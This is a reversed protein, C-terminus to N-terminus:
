SHEGVRRVVIGANKLNTDHDSDGKKRSKREAEVAEILLSVKGAKELDTVKKSKTRPATDFFKLFGM